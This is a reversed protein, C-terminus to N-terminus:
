ALTVTQTAPGGLASEWETRTEPSPPMPALVLSANPLPPRTVLAAAGGCTVDCATGAANPAGSPCLCRGALSSDITAGHVNAYPQCASCQNAAPGTCGDCTRHCHYPGKNLFIYLSTFQGRIILIVKGSPSSIQQQQSSITSELVTSYTDASESQSTLELTGENLEVDNTIQVERNLLNPDYNDSGFQTAFQYCTRPNSGTKIFIVSLTAATVYGTARQLSILNVVDQDGDTCRTLELPLTATLDQRPSGTIRVKTIQVTPSTTGEQTLLLFVFAYLLVKKLNKTRKPHDKM